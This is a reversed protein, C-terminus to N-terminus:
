LREKQYKQTPYFVGAQWRLATASCAPIVRVVRIQVSKEKKKGYAEVVIYVNLFM